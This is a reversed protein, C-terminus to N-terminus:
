NSRATNIRARLATLQIAQAGCDYYKKRQFFGEKGRLVPENCEAIDELTTGPLFAATKNGETDVFTAAFQQVDVGPTELPDSVFELNRNIYRADVGVLDGTPTDFDSFGELERNPCTECLRICNESTRM